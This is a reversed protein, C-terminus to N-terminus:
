LGGAEPVECVDCRTELGHKFGHIFQEIMLPRVTRLFWDVHAVALREAYERGYPNPGIPDPAFAVSSGDDATPEVPISRLEREFEQTLPLHARTTKTQRTNDEM